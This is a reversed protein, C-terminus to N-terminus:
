VHREDRDRRQRQEILHELEAETVGCGACTLGEDPDVRGSWQHSDGDNCIDLADM